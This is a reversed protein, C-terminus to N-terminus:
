LVYYHTIMDLIFIKLIYFHLYIYITAIYIYLVFYTIYFQLDYLILM